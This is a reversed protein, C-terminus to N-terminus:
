EYRLAEIPSKKSAKRAPYLGFVLGVLASIGIGLGAATYPFAFDWAVGLVQSIIVAGALSFLYGLTVGIIGGAATLIIAEILFQSMINQTTAGLAKRLGIEKTRESVSVLMINMVGIGGVLLAIAVVSSLFITLAQLITGVQEVANQQTVVFFDDKEPDTINHQARLTLTIDEVARNVLDPNQMRILVENYFDIGLLYSQATTYPIAVIDDVNFFSSQGYPPLIGTVRFNKGRIKIYKGLANQNGFFEEAVNHGIVATAERAKIEPEGFLVGEEPYVSLMRGMFEASWGFVSAKRYIEGGYTVDGTVFLVPIVERVGPVNGPNKLADIDRAKLSDAFLTGAIDTPGSPERGPRVVVVDTGLGELQSLIVRQAGEGISSILIISTIGIVIGLTTLLSRVKNVTIGRVATKVLYTIRM